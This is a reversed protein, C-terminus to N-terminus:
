VALPTGWAPFTSARFFWSITVVQDPRRWPRPATTHMTMEDFLLADGPEFVPFAPPHNRSLDELLGPPLRNGYDLPAHEDSDWGYRRDLPRPIVGLGPNDTGCPTIATWCNVAYSRSGFFSADQHWPIAAYRDRAAELCRLKLREAFLVPQHALYPTVAALLGCDRYIELLDFLVRASCGLPSAPPDDGAVEALAQLHQVQAADYLGRVLLAGHQLLGCALTGTNLDARNIEPLTGAPCALTGSALPAPAPPSQGCLARGAALRLTVLEAEIARDRRQRNRASLEAIRQQLVAPQDAVAGM